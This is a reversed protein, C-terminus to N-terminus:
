PEVYGRMEIPYGITKTQVELIHFHVLYFSITISSKNWSLFFLFHKKKRKPNKENMSNLKQYKLNVLGFLLSRSQINKKSRAWV